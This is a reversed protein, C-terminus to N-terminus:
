REQQSQTNLVNKSLEQLKKVFIDWNYGTIGGIALYGLTANDQNTSTNMQGSLVVLGSQIIAFALIGIIMALLPSFLFGWLHDPDFTKEVAKYRHFSIIGLLASGLISGLMTFALFFVHAPLPTSPVLSWLGYISKFQNIWGDFLLWVAAMTYFFIYVPVVYALKSSRNSTNVQPTDPHSSHPLSSITDPEQNITEYKNKEQHQM